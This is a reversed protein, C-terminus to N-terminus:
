RDIDIVLPAHDSPSPGKRAERDVGAFSLHEVLPRSILGLDIRMGWGRHFSGARYDWWSYLADEDPHLVRVADSLGWDCLRQVCAREAPTVHTAGVFQSIDWVDRDELAVNFDGFIGIRQEPLCTADLDALLHDLWDLKAQYHESDVTRGNPVYVSYLRVGDCTASVVRCETPSEVREDFFGARTEELGVRSIIAVGNWQSNGHHFSEYGLDAFIQAPFAENKCKTEQLMLVDPQEIEIWEVVRDIRARLSNVNWTALKM